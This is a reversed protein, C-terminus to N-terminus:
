SEDTLKEGTLKIFVDEITAEKSHVFSVQNNESLKEYIDSSTKTNLPSEYIDGKLTKIILVNEGYRKKLNTPTDMARISGKHIIALCDCLFDAEEMNHTTILITKGQEKLDLIMQRIERASRPDLGSGPEDLFLVDPDNLLARSIMIKQKMGKSFTKVKDKQYREMGVAKLVEGIREKPSNYLRRFFNLNEYVSLEEYLNQSEFVVGIKKKIKVADSVTNLGGIYATGSTPPLQCTLIKITTSKGAGNPGLLGFITGKKISFSISKVAEFDGYKKSLNETVIEKDM